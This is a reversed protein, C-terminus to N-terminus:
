DADAGAASAKVIRILDVQEPREAIPLSTSSPPSAVKLRSETELILTDDRYKRRVEQRARHRWSGADTKTPESCRPSAHARTSDPVCLWDISGTRDVLASHASKRDTRLRRDPQRMQIVSDKPVLIAVPSQRCNSRNIKSRVGPKSALSVGLRTADHAITHATSIRRLQLHRDARRSQRM